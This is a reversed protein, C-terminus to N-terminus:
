KKLLNIILIITGILVGALLLIWGIVLFWPLQHLVGVGDSYRSVQSIVISAVGIVILITPMYKPM